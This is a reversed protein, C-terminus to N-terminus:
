VSRFVKGYNTKPKQLIRSGPITRSPEEMPVSLRAKTLKLIMSFNFYSLFMDVVIRKDLVGVKIRM